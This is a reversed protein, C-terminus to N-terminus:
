PPTDVPRGTNEREVVHVITTRPACRVPLTPLDFEFHGRFRRIDIEPHDHGSLTLSPEVIKRDLQVACQVFCVGLKVEVELRISDDSEVRALASNSVPVTCVVAGGKALLLWPM